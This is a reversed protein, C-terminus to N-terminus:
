APKAPVFAGAAGEPQFLGRTAHWARAQKCHGPGNGPLADVLRERRLDWPRGTAARHASMASFTVDGNGDTVACLARSWGRAIQRHRSAPGALVVIAALVALASFALLALLGLALRRAFAVAASM